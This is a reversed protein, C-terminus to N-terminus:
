QGLKDKGLITQNLLDAGTGTLGKASTKITSAMGARMRSIKQRREEASIVGETQTPSVISPAPSAIPQQVPAAQKQGGGFCGRNNFIDM